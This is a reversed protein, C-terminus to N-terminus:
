RRRPRLTAVNVAALLRRRRGVAASMSRRAQDVASWYAAADAAEPPRPGFVFSDARRALSPAADASIDCSQERRTVSPGLAVVQGLDRAHDVLERWAGVFRASPTAARRRRRRRLAKLALISGVVLAVVLLPLGVYRLVVGVWAPLGALAEEDEDEEKSTKREKLDANSQDGIDSPPPIPAPPPIVTGTMPEETQPLQQTPPEKSMFKETPLTRWSGDAARLEVWASVDAGTVAGDQPVEAGLVVRAPVGVQQALLAMTAAYQEDNGVMVQQNLFEDSLRHISHGPHYQREDKGIGDSYKGERKLHRAIALVRSMPETTDESWQTAPAGLFATGPPLTTVASSPVTGPRLSDDPVVATFTYTDGPALGTPVVATSTALNYRFVEAKLLPDGIGFELSTLSGSTPLWVGDYGEGITVSAEVSTGEVPNDLTSSVRQFSDGGEGPLADNSAGWVLGDYRDMTAIRMRSGPELGSVTFLTEDHVNARDSRGQPDVYKRFGALPSPYRGIDFPPTIWDRAVARESDDGVLAGAPLSAAAALAVMAAGVALRGWGATGGHVAASARRSRMALWGLALAAFVAGHVLLSTPHRVGLLLTLALLGTMALVPLLAGLWARRLVLQSLATGSVGAVLGLLWPLVLLPGSGDVPPLTTLLDKWGFIAQDALESLTAPGPILSADGLSRLCLLGGLLFFVVLALVVASVFPWGVARTVHTILVGLVVGLVGVLLFDWGTFSSALSSISVVALAVVMVLDVATHRDPLLPTPRVRTRTDLHRM